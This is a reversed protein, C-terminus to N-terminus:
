NSYYKLVFECDFRYNKQSNFQWFTAQESTAQFTLNAKFKILNFRLQKSQRKSAPPSLTPESASTANVRTRSAPRYNAVTTTQKLKAEISNLKFLNRLKKSQKIGAPTTQIQCAPRTNCRPQSSKQSAPRNNLKSARYIYWLPLYM